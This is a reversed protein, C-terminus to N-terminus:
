EIEAMAQRPFEVHEFTDIVLVTGVSADPLDLHHLDLVRDVGPSERTDAGIYEKGPFLPRLDASGEQGAAQRAGFAVIPESVPLSEALIGLLEKIAARM